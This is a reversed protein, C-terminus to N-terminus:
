KVVIASAMTVGDASPDSLVIVQSGAALEAARRPTPPSPTRM